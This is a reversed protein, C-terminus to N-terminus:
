HWKGLCKFHYVGSCRLQSGWMKDGCHDCRTFRLVSLQQFIHERRGQTKVDVVIASSLDRTKSGPWKFKGPRSMSIDPLNKQSRGFTGNSEESIYTSSTTSTSVSHQMSSASGHHQTRNKDFSRSREELPPSHTEHREALSIDSMNSAEMRRAYQTSLQALEENRANLVTTEELFMDRAAKLDAIERALVNRQQTLPILEHQYQSKINDLRMTLSRGLKAVPLDGNTHNPSSKSASLEEVEALAMDREVKIKSLDRELESLNDSLEQSMQQRLEQRKVEGSMTTLRVAQGSLLVRLRTVEAEADRRAKLEQDYETSAVALGDVCQQSTRKVGDYKFKLQEFSRRRQEFATLIAEIFGKDLKLQQAGRETADTYAEQLRRVVLDSSDPAFPRASNSETTVLAVSPNSATSSHGNHFSNSQNRSESDAAFLRKSLSGSGSRDFATPPARTLEDVSTRGKLRGGPHPKRLSNNRANTPLQAIGDTVIDDSVPTFPQVATPPPTTPTGGAEESLKALQDLAKLSPMGGVNKLMDSFDAGTMSFRIPPLAPAIFTAVSTSEVPEEGEDLDEWSGPNESQINKSTDPADDADGDKDNDPNLEKSETSGDGSEEPSVEPLPLFQVSDSSQQESEDREGETDTGSEISHPVDARRESAPRSRSGSAARSGDSNSHSSLRRDPNASHDLSKQLRASHRNPSGLTPSSRGQGVNREEASLRHRDHYLPSGTMSPVQDLTVSPRPLPRVEPLQHKPSYTSSRGTSHLRLTPQDTSIDQQQDNDPPPLPSSVASHFGSSSSDRWTSLSKPSTTQTPFCNSIPSGESPADSPHHTLSQSQPFTTSRPTSISLGQTPSGSDVEHVVQFSHRKDNRPTTSGNSPINLSELPGNVSSRSNKRFLVNLPRTGDDYSKKRQLTSGGPSLYELMTSSSSGPEKPTISPSSQDQFRTYSPSPTSSLTYDGQSPPAEVTVSLQKHHKPARPPMESTISITTPTPLKPEPKFADSVMPLSNQKAPTRPLIQPDLDSVYPSPSPQRNRDNRSPATSAHSRMSSDASPSADM